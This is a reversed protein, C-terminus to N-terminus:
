PLGQTYSCDSIDMCINLHLFFFLSIFHPLVLTDDILKHYDVNTSLGHLFMTRNSNNATLSEPDVPQKSKSVGTDNDTVNENGDEVDMSIGKGDKEAGEVNEVANEGDEDTDPGSDQDILLLNSAELLGKPGKQGGM